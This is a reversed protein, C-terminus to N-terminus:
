YIILPKLISRFKEGFEGKIADLFLFTPAACLRSTQLCLFVCTQHNLNQSPNQKQRSSATPRVLGGLDGVRINPPRKSTGPRLVSRQLPQLPTNGDMVVATYPLPSTRLALCLIGTTNQQHPYSTGPVLANQKLQSLISM